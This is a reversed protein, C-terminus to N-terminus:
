MLRAYVEDNNFTTCVSCIWFLEQVGLGAIRRKRCRQVDLCFFSFSWELYAATDM